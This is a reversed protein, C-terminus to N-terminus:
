VCRLRVRHHPDSPLHGNTGCCGFVQVEQPGPAVQLGLNQGRDGSDEDDLFAQQPREQANSAEADFRRATARTPTLDARFV